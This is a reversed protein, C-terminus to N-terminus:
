LMICSRIVNFTVQYCPVHGSLMSSSRIVHYKIQFCQTHGSLMTSAKNVHYRYRSSMIVHYTVQYCPIYLTRARISHNIINNLHFCRMDPLIAHCLHYYPMGVQVMIMACRFVNYLMSSLMINRYRSMSSFHAYDIVHCDFSKGSLKVYYRVPYCPM